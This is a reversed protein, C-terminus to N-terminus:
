MYYTIKKMFSGFEECKFCTANDSVCIEPLGHTAFLVRLTEITLTASASALPIVDLWKSFSDVVILFMKNLFPGAFDIHLRTWPKSVNEWPHLPALAPMNQHKQCSDCSKVHNEIANDLGPWWIFSRALAKMRSMGPHAQHLEELVTDQLDQPIIVRNGWLVCGNETSLESSIRIYPKFQDASMGPYLKGSMVYDYVKSLIPDTRTHSKVETSTVPAHSLEMMMIYNQSKSVDSVSDCPFRSLCDANGNDVGSRYQLTYNYSALLLAWRQIRACAMAPIPKNESLLGLLPKHDTLLIFNRGYLYQHFKKVAHVLALAEKEIQSYNREASNLARSCYAVPREGGGPMVHSLVAGVGYPSADCALSLQKDPDYHVLLGSSCLLLKTDEFAKQHVESWSWSTNKRLLEHLPELVDALNPLHRHYYNVMGLFSKLQSVDSPPSAKLLPEVKEKVPTVGDKSIKFGLYTVEPALFVCKEKKLKLGCEFLVKLVSSLNKLHEVDDRGSVLIDDVRVMTCPVHCIRKEIERQFIGSASHVGFQLRQFM